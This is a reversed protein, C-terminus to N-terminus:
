KEQGDVYEVEYGDYRIEFSANDGYAELLREAINDLSDKVNDQEEESLQEMKYDHVGIHLYFDYLDTALYNKASIDEINFWDEEILDDYFSPSPNGGQYSMNVYICQAEEDTLGQKIIDEYVEDEVVAFSIEMLELTLANKGSYRKSNFFGYKKHNHVYTHNSIKWIEEEGDKNEFQIYWDRYFGVEKKAGTTDGFLNERMTFDKRDKKIEESIVEWNGEGFFDDLESNYRITWGGLFWYVGGLIIVVLVVGIGVGLKKAKKMTMGKKEFNLQAM